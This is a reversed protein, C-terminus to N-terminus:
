NSVKIKNKNPAHQNANTNKENIFIKKCTNKFSVGTGMVSSSVSYITKM